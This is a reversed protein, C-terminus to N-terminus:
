SHPQATKGQVTRLQHLAAYANKYATYPARYADQARPDPEIVATRRVMEGTGEAISAFRGSAVGALIASGLAPADSVQTLHLPLGTIDAHIQLWLPSRTVGGAIVVDEVPVGGARM